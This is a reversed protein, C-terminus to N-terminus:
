VPSPTEDADVLVALIEWEKPTAGSITMILRLLAVDPQITAHLTLLVVPFFNYRLKVFPEAPSIVQAVNKLLTSKEM